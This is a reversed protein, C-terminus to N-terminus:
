APTGGLCTYWRGFHLALYSSRPSIDHFLVPPYSSSLIDSDVVWRSSFWGVVHDGYVSLRRVM